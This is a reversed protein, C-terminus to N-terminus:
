GTNRHTLCIAAQSAMALQGIKDLFNPKSLDTVGALAGIV